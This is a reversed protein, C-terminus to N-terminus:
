DKNCTNKKHPFIVSLTRNTPICNRTKFSLKFRNPRPCSGFQVTGLSIKVFPPVKDSCKLSTTNPKTRLKQQPYQRQSEVSKFCNYFYLLHCTLTRLIHKTALEQVNGLLRYVQTLTLIIWLLHRYYQSILVKTFLARLM